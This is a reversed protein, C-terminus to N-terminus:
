DDGALGNYGNYATKPGYHVGGSIHLSLKDHADQNTCQEISADFVSDGTINHTSRWLPHAFMHVPFRSYNSTKM